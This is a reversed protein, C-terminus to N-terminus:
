YFIICLVYQILSGMMEGISTNYTHTIYIDHGRVFFFDVDYVNMLSTTSLLM